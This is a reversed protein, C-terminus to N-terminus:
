RLPICPAVLFNGVIYIYIYICICIYMYVYVYICIYIYIYMCICVYIHIDQSKRCAHHARALFRVIITFPHKRHVCLNRELKEAGTWAQLNICMRLNISSYNGVNPLGRSAQSIIREQRSAIPEKKSGWTPMAQFEHHNKIWRQLVNGRHTLLEVDGELTRSSIPISWYRNIGNKTPHVDM